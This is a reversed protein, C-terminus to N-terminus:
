NQEMWGRLWAVQERVRSRDDAYPTLELYREFLEIAQAYAHLQMALAARDRVEYADRDDLILLRDVSAAARELDHQALYAAKLQALERALIERRSFSRLHHERLRVGGGYMGDLIQQLEITTLVRGGDFPDVVLVGFDGTFKVLFRGPLSIGTAEVGIRRTLELYLVSLTIPLGAHRDLAESLLASRPDYYDEDEGHFGEEDFLLHNMTEVLREVDRSGALRARVADSWLGVQELYPGLDLRPNEELAIVLSGEVLDVLPEPRGAIERFRQRALAPHTLVRGAHM